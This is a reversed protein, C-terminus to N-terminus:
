DLASADVVEDAPPLAVEVDEGYDYLEFMVSAEAKETAGPQTASFSMELQRVLGQEDLWVDVPLETTGVQELMEEVMTGAEERQAAPVLKEYEALDVTARYHTTTVGHLEETGVTEVEGSAARLVDLMKSRDESTFQQFQSLDFGQAKAEDGVDMRVWSKGEPLESSIAPFRMYMVEGDQVAEIQWAAPDDFDPAGDKPGGLGSLLGGLLKAFASFDFTFQSRNAKVDFAGSGSFAFVETTGPMTAELSFGFRGSSVDASTTAAQSLQTFSIPEGSVSTGSGGGCGALVALCGVLGLLATLRLRRNM